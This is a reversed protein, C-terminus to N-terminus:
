LKRVRVQFRGDLNERPQIYLEMLFIGVDWQHRNEPYYKCFLCVIVLPVGDAKLLM